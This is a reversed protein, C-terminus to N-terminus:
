GFIDLVALIGLLIWGIWFVVENFPEAIMMVALAVIALGSGLRLRRNQVVVDPM